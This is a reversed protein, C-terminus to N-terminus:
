TRLSPHTLAWNLTITWSIFLLAGGFLAVLGAYFGVTAFLLLAGIGVIWTGAYLGTVVLNLGLRNYFAERFHERSNSLFREPFYGVSYQMIQSAGFLRQFLLFSGRGIALGIFTSGVAAVSGWRWGAAYVFGAMLLLNVVAAIQLALRSWASGYAPAHFLTKLQASALIAVLFGTFVGLLGDILLGSIAGGVMGIITIVDLVRRSM